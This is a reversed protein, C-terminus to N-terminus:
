NPPERKLTKLSTKSRNRSTSAIAKTEIVSIRSIIQKQQERLTEVSNRKTNVYDITRDFDKLLHPYCLLTGSTKIKNLERCLRIHRLKGHYMLDHFHRRSEECEKLRAALRSYTRLNMHEKCKLHALAHVDYRAKLKLRNLEASREAIKGVLVQVLTQNTLYDRMYLGGGLNELEESKNQIDAYRHQMHLLELQMDCLENRFRDMGNLFNNMMEQLHVYNENTLLTKEIIKKLHLNKEAADVTLSEVKQQLEHCLTESKHMTADELELLRDLEILSSKYRQQNIAEFQNPNIMDFAKRRSFYDKLGLQLNDNFWLEEDLQHSLAILKEMLKEKDLRHHLGLQEVGEEQSNRECKQVVQEILHQLFLQCITTAMTQPDQPTEETLNLFKVNSDYIRIRTFASAIDEEGM